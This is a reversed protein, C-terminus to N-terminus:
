KTAALKGKLLHLAYVLALHLISIKANIPSKVKARHAIFIM